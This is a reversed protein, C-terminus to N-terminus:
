ADKTAGWSNTERVCHVMITGVHRMDEESFNYPLKMDWSTRVIRETKPMDPLDGGMFEWNKFFRANYSTGFPKVQVGLDACRAKFDDRMAQDWNPTSFVCHDACSEAGEVDEPVILHDKVLEGM